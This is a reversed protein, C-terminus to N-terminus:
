IGLVTLQTEVAMRFRRFVLRSLVDMHGKALLHAIGTVVGVPGVGIRQQFAPHFHYAVRAVQLFFGFEHLGIGVLWHSFASTVRAMVGMTGIDVFNELRFSGAHALFAVRVKHLLGHSPGVVHRKVGPHAKGAVTWVSAVYGPHHNVLLPGHTEHAMGVELMVDLSASALVRRHRFPLARRAVAGVLCLQAAQEQRFRGVQAHGAVLVEFFLHVCAPRVRRRHPTAEPAVHWMEGPLGRQNGLGDMFKAPSTMIDIVFGETRRMDIYFSRGHVASAAM